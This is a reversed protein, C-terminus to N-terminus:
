STSRGARGPPGGPRGQDGQRDGRERGRQPLRRLRLGGPARDRGAAGPRLAPRPPRHRLPGHGRRLDPPPLAPVAPAEGLLAGRDRHVPDGGNGTVDDETVFSMELDLQTFEPQRDARQDEDRFCRAIQFYRDMGAVMLLQKFQQPAQPLAYFQGPHLRAPVLFDRAGEPTSKTLIPTEIEVFDRADLFDRMHKVVRHRLVITDRLSARRLDLYRYRLRLAEEVPTDENIYFPPTRAPNLVTLGEAVVEIEGTPLNPNETGAPRRAVTGAM